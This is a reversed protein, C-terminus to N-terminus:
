RTAREVAGASRAPSISAPTRALGLFHWRQLGPRSRQPGARPEKGLARLALPAAAGPGGPRPGYPETPACAWARRRRTGSARGPRAGGPEPGCEAGAGGPSRLGSGGGRGVHRQPGRPRRERWGTLGPGGRGPVTPASPRRAHGWGLWASGAGARPPRAPGYRCCGPARPAWTPRAHPRRPLESAARGPRRRLM